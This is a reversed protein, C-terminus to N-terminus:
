DAQVGGAQVPVPEEEEEPLPEAHPGFLLWLTWLASPILALVAMWTLLGSIGLDTADLAWGGVASGIASTLTFFAFETSFVRGRVRDPVLQLLLQTSFVWGTGAGFGRLLTGALVLAFSALPSIILLGLAATVYAVAVAIRLPRDRDGTFRRSLIPGIGTGVGMAAYMLGLSTGGGQGIVFVREAIAVQIVQFAGGITLSIAAKHFSIILIDLHDRLYRLGDIYQRLAARVSKDASELAPDREYVVQAILAASAVFTLADIVFAPYIGWEGAVIGGLAAGFALMVSWTASSLANAAGLERRSVVDPLIANRSPFFFGSMGLQIATLTYLLWVQHTERVLLFGLVTIARGIDTLILLHKRNYRDAAVGAFPSVVLQALMRVVFLGGVALGSQTLLAVLSASAILNFWDGLLSIIQGFWLFRFNRNQRVLTTYSVSSRRNTTATRM